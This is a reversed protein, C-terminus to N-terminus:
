NQSGTQAMGLLSGGNVPPAVVAPEATARVRVVQAGMPLIKAPLTRAPHAVPAVASASAEYLASSQQVPRAAAQRVPAEIQHHTVNESSALRAAERHQAAHSYATRSQQPTVAPGANAALRATVAPKAPAEQAAVRDVAQAAAERGHVEIPPGSPATPVAGSGPMAPVLDEPNSVPAASGPAPLSNSLAALTVLQGPKMPQLGTFQAALAAIRSPDAELAWQAQLVRIAQEDQRSTEAVQEMRDELSQSQHKVVFLYAGSLAFLLGTLFTFPRVIM